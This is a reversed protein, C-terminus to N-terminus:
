RSSAGQSSGVPAIFLGPRGIPLFTFRDVTLVSWMAARGCRTGQKGWRATGEGIISFLGWFAPYANLPTGKDNMYALMANRLAAARGLKPDAAM